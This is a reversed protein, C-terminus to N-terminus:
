DGGGCHGAKHKQLCSQFFIKRREDRMERRFLHEVEQCFIEPERYREHEGEHHTRHEEKRHRHQVGKEKVLALPRFLLQFRDGLYFDQYALFLRLHLLLDDAGDHVGIGELNRGVHPDGAALIKLHVQGQCATGCSVAHGNARTRHFVHDILRALHVFLGLGQFLHLRREGFLRFLKAERAVHLDIDDDVDVPVHGLCTDHALVRCTVAEIGFGQLGHTM